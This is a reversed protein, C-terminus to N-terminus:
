YKVGVTLTYVGNQARPNREDSQALGYADDDM